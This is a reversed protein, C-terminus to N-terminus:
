DMDGEFIMMNHVSSCLIACITSFPIVYKKFKKEMGTLYTVITKCAGKEQLFSSM